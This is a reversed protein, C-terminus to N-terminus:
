FYLNFSGPLSLAGFALYFQAEGLAFRIVRWTSFNGLSKITSGKQIHFFKSMEYNVFPMEEESDERSLSPPNVEGSYTQLPTSDQPTLPPNEAFLDVPESLHPKFKKAQHHQLLLTKLNEEILRTQQANKERLTQASEKREISVMTTKYTHKPPFPPLEPPALIPDEDAIPNNIKQFPSDPPLSSSAKKIKLQKLHLHKTALLELRQWPISVSKLAFELDFIDPRTRNGHEAARKMLKALHEIFLEAVNTLIELSIPESASFGVEQCISAVMHRLAQKEPRISRLPYREKDEM